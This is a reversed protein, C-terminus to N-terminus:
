CPICPFVARRAKICPICPFVRSYVPIGPFVPICPIGPIGPFVPICPIGPFVPFVRSYGPVLTPSKQGFSGAEKALLGSKQGQRALLAQVLYHQIARIGPVAPDTSPPSPDPTPPRRIRGGGDSPDPEREWRPGGSYVPIGPICPICPICPIRCIGAPRGAPRGAKLVMIKSM